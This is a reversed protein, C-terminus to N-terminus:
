KLALVYKNGPEHTPARYFSRYSGSPFGEGALLTVTVADNGDTKVQPGNVSHRGPGNIQQGVYIPAVGWGAKAMQVRQRIWSTSGHSPAAALYYGCWVLNTNSRLWNMEAIVPFESSDFGAFGPM